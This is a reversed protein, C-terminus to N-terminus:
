ISNGTNWNTAMAKEGKAPYGQSSDPDLLLAEAFLVWSASRDTHTLANGPVSCFLGKQEDGNAM